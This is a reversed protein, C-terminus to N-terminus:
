RFSNKRCADNGKDDHYWWDHISEVMNGYKEPYKAVECLRCWGTQGYEEETAYKYSYPPDKNRWSFLSNYATDNALYYNIKQALEELPQDEVHLFADKDIIKEYSERPPGGVIPVVERAICHSWFKETVYDYCRSNEIALYFRFQNARNFIDSSIYGTNNPNNDYRSGCKGYLEVATSGDPWKVLKKLTAMIHNRYYSRCNSVVALVGFKKESAINRSTPIKFVEHPSKLKKDEVESEPAKENVMKQIISDKFKKKVAWLTNYPLPVSSDHRYTMTYNYIKDRHKYNHRHYYPSEFQLFTWAQSTRTWNKTFNLISPGWQKSATGEKYPPAKDYHFVIVKARKYNSESVKLSMECKIKQPCHDLNLNIGGKWKSAVLILPVEELTSPTSTTNTITKSTAPQYKTPLVTPVMGTSLNAHM